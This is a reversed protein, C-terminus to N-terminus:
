FLKNNEEIIDNLDFKRLFTPDAIYAAFYPTATDEKKLFIMFPKDFIIQHPNEPVVCNWKGELKLYAKVKAGTNTLSFNLGEEIKTIDWYDLPSKELRRKEIEPHNTSWDLDIIPIKVEANFDVSKFGKHQQLTQFTDEFSTNSSFPSKVMIIEQSEDKPILSIAFDDENKYYLLGPLLRPKFHCVKEGEFILPEESIKSPDEFPLDKNFSVEINLENDKKEIVKKYENEKLPNQHFKYNNLVQLTKDRIVYDSGIEDIFADFALKFMPVYATNKALNLETSLTNCFTANETKDINIKKM